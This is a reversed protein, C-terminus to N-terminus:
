PSARTLTRPFPITDRIHDLKCIWQIMREIGMGFGSHPVAGFRRTDFYWEYLSPDEGERRLNAKMKEIDNERESGGILEVGIEPALFDFAMALDPNEGDAKKYFAMVQMPYHTVVTPADFFAMLEREEITRLDKGWEIDVGAERLMEIADSYKLRTFPPAVAKLNNPDRGLARLEDPVEEAIKRCVQSVLNEGIEIAENMDMWAMEAEAHWYETLHRATRSKEARFSPAVTYIKELGYMTAEAYLQWSQTLYVNRGFYDVEFQSSGGECASPTFSPSQTEFFGEGRFYEHIAGFLSSRIKLVNTMRQSRVWLHRIDLLFEESKDKSIPFKEAFGVVRFDKARVEFGGPAREDEVVEGEVEVSSEILASGADIFAKESVSQKDVTVQVLGSSDRLVAFVLGGSSRTRHIWGRISVVDGTHSGKLIEGIAIM